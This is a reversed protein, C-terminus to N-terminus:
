QMIALNECPTNVGLFTFLYKPVFCGRKLDPQSNNTKVKQNISVEPPLKTNQKLLIKWLGFFFLAGAFIILFFRKRM